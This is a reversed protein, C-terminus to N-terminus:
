QWRPDTIDFSVDGFMEGNLNVARLVQKYDAPGLGNQGLVEDVCDWFENRDVVELECTGRQRYPVVGFPAGDLEGGYEVTGDILKDMTTMIFFTLQMM